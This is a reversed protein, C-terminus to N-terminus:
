SDLEDIFAYVEKESPYTILVARHKGHFVFTAGASAASAGGKLCINAFDELGRGGGAAIV